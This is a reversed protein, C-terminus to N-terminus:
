APQAVAGSRFGSDLLELLLAPERNVSDDTRL